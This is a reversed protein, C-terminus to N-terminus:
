MGGGSFVDAMTEPKTIGKALEAKIVKGLEAPEWTAAKQNQIRAASHWGRM